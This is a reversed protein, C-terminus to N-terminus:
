LLVVRAVIQQMQLLLLSGLSDRRLSIENGLGMKLAVV